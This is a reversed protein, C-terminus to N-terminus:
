ITQLREPGIGASELHRFELSGSELRCNEFLGSSDPM